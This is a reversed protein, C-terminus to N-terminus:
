RFNEVLVLDANSPTFLSHLVQRGDSSVSLGLSPEGEIKNLLRSKGSSLELFM